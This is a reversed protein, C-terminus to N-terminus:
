KTPAPAATASVTTTAASGSGSGSLDAIWAGSNFEADVASIQGSPTITFMDIGRVPFQGSGIGNAVWRWAIKNCTFFIEQTTV